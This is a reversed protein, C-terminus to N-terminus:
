RRRRHVTLTPCNDREIPPTVSFTTPTTKLSSGRTTTALYDDLIARHDFALSIDTLRDFPVIEVARADSGPKPRGTTKAVYVVSVTHRRLDRRPDGYVGLLVPAEVLDLGTEERLERRVADRPLEGVDVFGGMTAYLDNDRRRVLVVGEEHEIVLDIALSPTCMAYDDPGVWCSGSPSGGPAGGHWVYPCGRRGLLLTSLVCVVVWAVVESGHHGSRRLSQQLSGVM